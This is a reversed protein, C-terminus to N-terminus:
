PRPVGADQFAKSLVAYTQDAAALPDYNERRQVMLSIEASIYGTYGHRHMAKLYRVYDFVGEGPILFEHDPYTGREDKVHTHATVSALKEVSEEIPMGIINFHSIDFNVKLYPSNVAELLELVRDPDHIANGCHPEMAITVGRSAAYEVLEGTREIITQKVENWADRKGGATTDICPPEGDLAWDVALDVADRLRQLNARLMEPDDELMSSHAAIAPIELHHDRLMGAIRKREAPTLNGYLETAYRPIVTIEVGDFGLQSLHPIFVDAPVTPMSWTSYGIKM